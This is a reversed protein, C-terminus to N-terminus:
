GTVYLLSSHHDNHLKTITVESDVDKNDKAAMAERTLALRKCHGENPHDSTYFM